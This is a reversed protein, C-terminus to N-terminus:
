LSWLTHSIYNQMGQIALASQFKPQMLIMESCKMSAALAVEIFEGYPVDSHASVPKCGAGHLDILAALTWSAIKEISPFSTSVFSNSLLAVGPLFVPTRAITSPTLNQALSSAILSSLFMM